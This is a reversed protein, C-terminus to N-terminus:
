QGSAVEINVNLKGDTTTKSSVDMKTFRPYSPTSNYPLIGGYLGVQKGDLGLFKTKAEDTLKFNSEDSYEGTFNKFVEAFTSAVCGSSSVLDNYANEHNIAVCNYALSTTPISYASSGYTTEKWFIICNEIQSYPLNSLYEQNMVCNLFTASATDYYRDCNGLYCNVFHVSGHCLQYRDIIKCNAFMANEIFDEDYYGLEVYSYQCKSFAADKFKGRLYMNGSCRIGEMTFRNTDETPININFDNVIYTPMKNDIGTGRLTIAKTIDVAQFAGDSLNIIDGSEAKELADRLAYAGYYMSVDNGHSLTAVLTSQARSSAFCGFLAAMVFLIKKM